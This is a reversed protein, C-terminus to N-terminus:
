TGPHFDRMQSPEDEPAIKGDATYLGMRVLATRAASPSSTNAATQRKIAQKIAQRKEDTM